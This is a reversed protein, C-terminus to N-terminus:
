IISLASFLHKMHLAVPTDVTNGATAKWAAATTTFIESYLIDWQKNSAEDTTIIRNVTLTNNTENFLGVDETHGFFKHTGDKWSYTNGSIYNWAGSEYLISEDIYGAGDLFDYVHFNVSQLGAEDEILARTEVSAPAFSIGSEGLSVSQTKSCATAALLLVIASYTFVKKM